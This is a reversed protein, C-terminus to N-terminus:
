SCTVAQQQRRRHTCPPRHTTTPQWRWCRLRAQASSHELAPGQPAAAEEGSASLPPTVVECSTQPAPAAAQASAAGPARKALLEPTAGAGAAEAPEPGGGRAAPPPLKQAAPLASSTGHPARRAGPPTPIRSVFGLPSPQAASRPGASLPTRRDPGGPAGAPKVAFRAQTRLFRVEAPPLRLALLAPSLLSHCSAAGVKENSDGPMTNPELPTLPTRVSVRRARGAPAGVM